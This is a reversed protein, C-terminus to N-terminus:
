ALSAITTITRKGDIGRQVHRVLYAKVSSAIQVDSLAVIV